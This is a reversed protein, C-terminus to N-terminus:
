FSNSDSVEIDPAFPHPHTMNWMRDNWCGDCMRDQANEAGILDEWADDKFHAIKYNRFWCSRVLRVCDYYPHLSVRSGFCHNLNCNSYHYQCKWPFLYPHQREAALFHERTPLITKWPNPIILRFSKHTRRLIMLTLAHGPDSAHDSFNSLIKLKMELPLALLPPLINSPQRPPETQPAM